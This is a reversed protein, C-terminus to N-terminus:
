SHCSNVLDPILVNSPCRLHSPKSLFVLPLVSTTHVHVSSLRNTYRSFSASSSLHWSFFFRHLGFLLNISRTFSSLATTLTVFSSVSSLFLQLHFLRQPSGQHSFGFFSSSSPLIRLMLTRSRPVHVIIAAYKLSASILCSYLPVVGRYLCTGM